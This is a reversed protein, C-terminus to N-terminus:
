DHFMAQVTQLVMNQQMKAQEAAAKELLPCNWILHDNMRCCPCWIPRQYNLNENKLVEKQVRIQNLLPTPCVSVM